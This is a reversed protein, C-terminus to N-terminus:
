PKRAVGGVSWSADPHPTSGALHPRWQSLPVVGPDILDLGDFYRAVETGSRVQNRRGDLLGDRNFLEIMDSTTAECPDRVVHAIVLHGGPALRDALRAAVSAAVEDSYVALVARVVFATPRRLDLFGALDPHDLMADPDRPDARLVRVVPRGALSRKGDNAVIAQGYLAAVPDEDVCVVRGPVGLGELVQHISGHVPLGCGVDVFQDVGQGVLYAVARHLFGNLEATMLPVEPMIALLEDGLARDVAFNDKGGVLYDMVRAFNPVTPDIPGPVRESM